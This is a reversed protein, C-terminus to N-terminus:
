GALAFFGHVRPQKVALSFSVSLAVEDLDSNRYKDVDQLKFTRTDGKVDHNIIGADLPDIFLMWDRTFATTSNNEQDVVYMYTNDIGRDRMFMIEGFGFDVVPNEFYPQAGANLFSLTDTQISVNANLMKLLKVYMSGSCLAIKRAYEGCFRFVYESYEIM